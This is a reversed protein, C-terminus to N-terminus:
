KGRALNALLDNEVGSRKDAGVEEHPGPTQEERSVVWALGLDDVVSAKFNVPDEPDEDGDENDAEDAGHAILLFVTVLVLVQVLVMSSVRMVM